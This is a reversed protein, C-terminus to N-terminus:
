LIRAVSTDEADTHGHSAHSYISQVRVSWFCYFKGRVYRKQLRSVRMACDMSMTSRDMLVLVTRYERSDRIESCWSDPSWDSHRSILM